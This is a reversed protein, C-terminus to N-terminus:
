NDGHQWESFETMVLGAWVTTCTYASVVLVVGCAIVLRSHVFLCCPLEGTNPFWPYLCWLLLCLLHLFVIEFLDTSSYSSWGEWRSSSARTEKKTKRLKWQPSYTKTAEMVTVVVTVLMLTWCAAACSYFTQISFLGGTLLVVPTNTHNVGYWVWLTSCKNKDLSM